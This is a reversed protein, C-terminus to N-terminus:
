SEVVAALPAGVSLCANHNDFSILWGAKSPTVGMRRCRRSGWLHFGDIMGLGMPEPAAQKLQNIKKLAANLGGYREVTERDASSVVQEATTRWREM